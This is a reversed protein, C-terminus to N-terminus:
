MFFFFDVLVIYCFSYFYPKSVSKCSKKKTRTVIVFFCLQLWLLMEIVLDEIIFDSLLM